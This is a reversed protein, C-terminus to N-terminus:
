LIDYRLIKTGPATKTLKLISFLSLGEKQTSAHGPHSEKTVISLNRLTMANYKVLSSQNMHVIRSICVPESSDELQNVVRNKLLFSVLGGCAGIMLEKEFDLISMLEMLQSSRESTAFREKV